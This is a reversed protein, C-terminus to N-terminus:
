LNTGDLEGTSLSLTGEKGGADRLDGLGGGGEMRPMVSPASGYFPPMGVPSSLNRLRNRGRMTERPLVSVRCTQM